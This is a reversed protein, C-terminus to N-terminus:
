IQKENLKAEQEKQFEILSKEHQARTINSNKWEHKYNELWKVLESDPFGKEIIEAEGKLMEITKFYNKDTWLDKYKKLGAKDLYRKVKSKFDMVVFEWKNKNIYNRREIAWDPVDKTKKALREKLKKNEEMLEEYTKVNFVNSNSMDSNSM